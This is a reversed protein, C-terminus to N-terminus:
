KNVLEKNEYIALYEDTSKLPIGACNKCITHTVRVDQLPEKEGQWKKCWSCIIIM